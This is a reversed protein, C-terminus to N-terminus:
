PLHESHSEISEALNWENRAGIHLHRTGVERALDLDHTAILLAVGQERAYSLRKILRARIERDLRQEPEDLILVSFPRVFAAALLTRRRQGSSLEYPSADIRDTLGFEHLIRRTTEGPRVVMHGRAVLELHQGISLGPLFADEDFVASVRQRYLLSSEVMREDYLHVEGQLAPQQAALTRLVTSKGAGNPGTIMLAEGGHVHCSLAEVVPARGYGCSLNRASVAPVGAPELDGNRSLLSESTPDNPRIEIQRKPRLRRRIM